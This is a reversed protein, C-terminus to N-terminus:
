KMEASFYNFTALIFVAMMVALLWGWLPRVYHTRIILFMFYDFVISYKLAWGNSYSLGAIQTDIYEITSFVVVWMLVYACKHATGAVPFNSLYILTVAPLALYTNLYEISAETTFIADDNYIWLPHHYSIYGASLNAVMVFLITSYYKQWNKWDGWKWASLLFGSLLCVRFLLVLWM